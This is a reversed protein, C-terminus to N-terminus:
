RAGDVPEGDSLTYIDQRPDSLEAEWERAVGRAWQQGAEDEESPLLLELEVPGPEVGAPVDASLRRHEDVRGTLRITRM